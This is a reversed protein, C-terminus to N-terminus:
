GRPVIMLTPVASKVFCSAALYASTLVSDAMGEIVTNSGFQLFMTGKNRAGLACPAIEYRRMVMCFGYARTPSFPTPYEPGDKGSSFDAASQPRRIRHRHFQLSARFQGSAACKSHERGFDIVSGSKKPRKTPCRTLHDPSPPIGPAHARAAQAPGAKLGDRPVSRPAPTRGPSRLRTRNRRGSRVQSSCAKPHKDAAM